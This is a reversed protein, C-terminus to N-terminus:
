DGATVAGRNPPAPGGPIGKAAFDMSLFLRPVEKRLAESKNKEIVQM